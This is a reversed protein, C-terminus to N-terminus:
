FYRGNTFLRLFVDELSCVCNFPRNILGSYLSSFLASPNHNLKSTASEPWMDMPTEEHSNEVHM